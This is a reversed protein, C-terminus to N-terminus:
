LPRCKMRIDIFTHIFDHISYLFVNLSVYMDLFCIFCVSNKERVVVGGWACMVQSLPLACVCAFVSDKKAPEVVGSSSASAWYGFVFACVCRFVGRQDRWQGEFVVLRVLLDSASEPDNKKAWLTDLCVQHVLEMRLEANADLKVALCGALRVKRSAHFLLEGYTLYMQRTEEVARWQQPFPAQEKAV